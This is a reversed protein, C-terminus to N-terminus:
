AGFSGLPGFVRPGSATLYLMQNGLIPSPNSVEAEPGMRIVELLFETFARVVM